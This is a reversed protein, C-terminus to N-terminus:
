ITEKGGLHEDIYQFFIFSGYEHWQNSLIISTNPKSFWSAIYRYHDNISDFLEDESWVATAEMFWPSQEFANCNYDFQIAHFFEHVATVKINDIETNSSFQSASYSNRMKIYSDCSNGYGIAFAAGFWDGPLNEIRIEYLNQINTPPMDFLMTDIFFSWVEEFISAMEEVYEQSEVKDYGELTYFFRFHETDYILDLDANLIDISGNNTTLGLQGLNILQEETLSNVGNKIINNIHITADIPGNSNLLTKFSESPSSIKGYLNTILFIFLLSNTSTM